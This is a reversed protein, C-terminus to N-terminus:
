CGLLSHAVSENRRRRRIRRLTNLASPLTFILRVFIIREKRILLGDFLTYYFLIFLTTLTSILQEQLNSGATVNSARYSTEKLRPPSRNESANVAQQGCIVAITMMRPLFPVHECISKRLATSSKHIMWCSYCTWHHFRNPDLENGVFFVIVRLQAKENIRRTLWM